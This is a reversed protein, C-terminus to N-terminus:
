PQQVGLVFYAVVFGPVLTRLFRYDNADWCGLAFSALAARVDDDVDGGSLGGHKIEDDLLGDVNTRFQGRYNGKDPPVPHEGDLYQHVLEAAVLRRMKDPSPDLPLWGGQATMHGAGVDALADVARPKPTKHRNEFAVKVAERMEARM